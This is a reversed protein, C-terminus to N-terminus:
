IRRIVNRRIFATNSCKLGNDYINMNSSNEIYADICNITGRLIVFGSSGFIKIRGNDRRTVGDVISLNYIDISSVRDLGLYSISNNNGNLFINTINNNGPLNLGNDDTNSSSLFNITPTCKGVHEAVNCIFSALALGSKVPNEQTGIGCYRIISDNNYNNQYYIQPNQELSQAGFNPIYNYGFFKKNQMQMLYDNNTFGGIFTECIAHMQTLNYAANYSNISILAFGDNVNISEVEGNVYNLKCIKLLKGNKTDIILLFNDVAYSVTRYEYGNKYDYAQMTYNIENAFYNVDHEYQSILTYDENLIYMIKNDTGCVLFTKTNKDWVIGLIYTNIINSINIYEYTDTTLNYKIFTGNGKKVDAILLFNDKISLCSGHIFPVNDNYSYGWNEGTITSGCTVKYLRSFTKYQCWLYINKYSGDDYYSAAMGQISGNENNIISKMVLLPSLILDDKISNINLKNELDSINNTNKEIKENLNNIDNTNKEIKENLNAFIEQNIIKALTGDTVMENLKNNIEDQIDLNNFYNNVYNQLDIFANTVNEMQTGLTNESNIIKNIEKGLKCFLQWETLADFDAEIFPFNELVFWKFPTLKNFEFKNM